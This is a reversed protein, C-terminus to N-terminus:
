KNEQILDLIYVNKILESLGDKIIKVKLKVTNKKDAEQLLLIRKEASLVESNALPRIGM